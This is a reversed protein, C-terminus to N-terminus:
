RKVGSNCDHCQQVEHRGQDTHSFGTSQGIRQDAGANSSQEFCAERFELCQSRILLHLLEATKRFLRPATGDGDKRFFGVFLVIFHGGFEKAENESGTSFVTAAPPIVAGFREFLGFVIGQSNGAFVCLEGVSLVDKFQAAAPTRQAQPHCFM